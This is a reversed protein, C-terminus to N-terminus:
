TQTRTEEGDGAEKKLREWEEQAEALSHTCGSAFSVKPGCIPCSDRRPNFERRYDPTQTSM